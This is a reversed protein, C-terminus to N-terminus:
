SGTRGFRRSRRTHRQTKFSEPRRRDLVMQWVYTFAWCAIGLWTNIFMVPVSLVFVVVPSSSGSIIWRFEEDTLDVEMLHDKHAQWILVTEIGSVAAMSLAFLSVAVANDDFRGMLASPFPLFAVFALYLLTYAMFPLDVAKLSSFFQHNALWYRGIIMFAVFFMIINPVSDGLRDVMDSEDTVDAIAPVAITAAILTMAIAFVADCFNAVRDFELGRGERRYAPVMWPNNSRAPPAPHEGGTESREDSSPGPSEDASVDPVSPEGPQSDDTTM